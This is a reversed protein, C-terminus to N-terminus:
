TVIQSMADPSFTLPSVFSLLSFVVSGSLYYFYRRQHFPAPMDSDELNRAATGPLYILGDSVGL